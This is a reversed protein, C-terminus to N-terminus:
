QENLCTLLGYYFTTSRVFVRHFILISEKEVLLFIQGWCKAVPHLIQYYLCTM